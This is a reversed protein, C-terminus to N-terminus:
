NEAYHPVVNWDEIVYYNNFALLADEKNTFLKIRVNGVMLRMGLYYSMAPLSGGSENYLPSLSFSGNDLDVNPTPPLEYADPYTSNDDVDHKLLGANQRAGKEDFGQGRGKHYEVTALQKHALYKTYNLAKSKSSFSKYHKGGSNYVGFEKGEKKVTFTGLSKGTKESAVKYGQKTKKIV